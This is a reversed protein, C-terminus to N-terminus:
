KESQEHAERKSLEPNALRTLRVCLTQTEAAVVVAVVADRTIARVNLVIHPAFLPLFIVRKSQNHDKNHNPDNSPDAEVRFDFLLSLLLSVNFGQPNQSNGLSCVFSLIGFHHNM